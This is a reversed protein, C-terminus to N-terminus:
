RDHWPGVRDVLLVRIARDPLVGPRGTVAVTAAAPPHEIVIRSRLEGHGVSHNELPAHCSRHQWSCCSVFPNSTQRRYLQYRSCLLRPARQFAGSDGAVPKGWRAAKTRVARLVKVSAIGRTKLQERVWAHGVRGSSIPRLGRTALGWILHAELWPNGAGMGAMGPVAACEATARLHCVIVM